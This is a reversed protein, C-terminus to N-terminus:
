DISQKYVKLGRKLIKIARKLKPSSLVFAIRIEDKGLGRTAYFGSAPTVMVTEGRFSFKTLIWEAFDNSDKIPLKVIMYFAGKPKVCKVEPIKKLEEFVTDRRKRYEDVVKKTYKKAKKLVPIIAKQEIMPLSLRAQTFRTVAKIVEKNKSCLCGIRVGCASFRKSVSDLLIAQSRIKRFNIISYHKQKDYIFERYTEDSIIFLNYKRAIAVIDKLEKKTYVTGTPNNPNCILIARTKNTIKEEIKKPSPLHFGTNAKTTIPVLKIGTMASYSNYSTYFPEFVLIEDKPDGVATFAFFIAESGGITAVIESPEFNIGLSKYYRQWASKLEGIGTSPTYTLRKGKFSRIKNLIQSPTSLDPQGIHIEYVKIGRKKVKELLPVFKRIPSSPTKGARRSIKSFM